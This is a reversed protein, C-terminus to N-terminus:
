VIMDGDEGNEDKERGKRLFGRSKASEEVMDIMLQVEPCQPLLEELKGTLEKLPISVNYIIKYAQQLHRITEKSFGRRRLGVLNLGYVRAIATHGAIMTFPITNQGVLCSQAVFCYEGITVFQHIACFAGVTSFDRLTVHGAIAAHNVLMVENKLHSDHGVHSYAMLYNKNGLSTLGDGYETGRHISVYERIVNEDGIELRTNVGKFGLHQPDDGLTAFSHIRNNKGIKTGRRIVVHPAIWTNDGISVGEEIYSWPGIEVNNGIEASSHVEARKDIKTM